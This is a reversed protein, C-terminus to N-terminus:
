DHGLAAKAKDYAEVLSYAHANGRNANEEYADVFAQCAKRLEDREAEVQELVELAKSPTQFRSQYSFAELGDIKDQSERMGTEAINRMFTENSLKAELRVIREELNGNETDLALNREKLDQKSPMMSDTM